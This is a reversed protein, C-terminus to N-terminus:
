GADPAALAASADTQRVRSGYAWRYLAPIMFQSLIMALGVGGAIVVALPPWFDGETFFMLPLFGGVTTLTTSVIHRTSGLTEKVIAQADGARAAPNAQFAALVVISGNIAVGILGASGLIPNFGLPYGAVFLCLLGLGVSAIAVIGIFGALLWSRFTLVLVAVMLVMLVPVYAVLSAIAEGSEESEGATELRYGPPLHFGAEALRQKVTKTVEIPLAGQETFGQIENVRQGDRHTIVAVTPELALEGLASAPLWGGAQPAVVQWDGMRNVSQRNHDPLRVRVPVEEVGELVSGSVRGDLNTQLQGAVDALTLGAQAARVEDAHHVLKPVGGSISSLTHTIAPVGHMVRRLTEGKARLVDLDPGFLRFSVPADIPPGQGFARVVIRADPFQQTLTAQLKNVATTVQQVDPMKVIGQAYTPRGDKNMVLNYYVTPFSAGTLWDIHAPSVTDRIVQDVEMARQATKEAATGPAMWIEVQFQDRDAPPFFQNPLTRAAMFGALALALCLAVATKPRNVSASVLRHYFHGLRKPQVGRQWWRSEAADAVHGFRAALAAIVTMSLVFSAILALVVSIAIPGVFDGINGTLLLIPMFGLITTLTSALLPAFLHKVSEAVAKGPAMGEQLRKRVEETVVIANDILLGLAIILGFVTMQHIQQNFVLLGFLATAASLPLALGVVLSPRWGMSFFVVAMVVLAGAMLNSALGQLRKQTYLSQDFRTELEIRSDIRARFTAITDKVAQSWQDVRADKGVRAAVFLARQRDTYGLTQLPQRWGREIRALDGLYTVAGESGGAVPIRAIRQLSDLEGQVEMIFRQGSQELTGAPVKVDASRIRRVVQSPTLGLSALKVPDLAVTIEEEPKGFVKVFDTGNIHRLQDALEEAHRGLINLRAPTNAGWKLALIYSFASAGRLDDFVPALADEPLESRVDDLKDRIKTFVQQNTSADINANLEVVIMSLGPRSNSKIWNIEPIEELREEIKETVLAEVREASAGPLATLITPNRLDIRPDEIRPLHSLATVGAVMVAIMVLTLLHSNRYFLTGM